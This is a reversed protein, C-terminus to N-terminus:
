QFIGKSSDKKQLIVPHEAKYQIDIQWPTWLSLHLSTIPQSISNAPLSAFKPTSKESSFSFFNNCVPSSLLLLLFPKSYHSSSLHISLLACFLCSAWNGLRFLPPSYMPKSFFIAFSLHFLLHHSMGWPWTTRSVGNSRHWWSKGASILFFCLSFHVGPQQSKQKSSCLEAWNPAPGRSLSM